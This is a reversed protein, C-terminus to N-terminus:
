VDFGAHRTHRQRRGERIAAVREEGSSLSAGSVKRVPAQPQEVKCLPMAQYKRFLLQGEPDKVIFNVYAQADTEGAKRVKQALREICPRGTLM